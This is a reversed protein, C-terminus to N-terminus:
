ANRGKSKLELKELEERLLAAREYDQADVAARLARQLEDRKATERYKPPVKGVHRDANQEDRILPLLESAFAKYCAPCGLTTNKRWENRTLGCAPCSPDVSPRHRDKVAYDLIEFAAGFLEDLVPRLASVANEADKAGNGSRPRRSSTSAQAHAACKRCVYLERQKGSEERIFVTEADATHCIECKM